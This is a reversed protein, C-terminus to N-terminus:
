LVTRNSLAINSQCLFSPRIYIHSSVSVNRSDGTLMNHRTRVYGFSSSCEFAVAASSTDGARVKYFLFMCIEGKKTNERIGSVLSVNLCIFITLNDNNNVKVCFLHSDTPM